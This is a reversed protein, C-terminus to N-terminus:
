KRSFDIDILAVTLSSKRHKIQQLQEEFLGFFYRRNYVGTLYDLNAQEWLKRIMDLSDLTNLVRCHFEEHVFPKQLFDNAGHKIFRASLGDDAEILQFLQQKLLNRVFKRSVLSDDAVLVKVNENRKLRKVLRPM